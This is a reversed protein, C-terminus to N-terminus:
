IPVSRAIRITSGCDILVEIADGVCRVVIPVAPQAHTRTVCGRFAAEVDDGFAEAVVADCGAHQAAHTALAKLTDCYREDAPMTLSLDFARTM